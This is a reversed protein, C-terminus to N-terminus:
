TAPGNQGEYPQGSLRATMIVGGGDCIGTRGDHLRWYLQNKEENRSLLIVDHMDHESRFGYLTQSQTDESSSFYYYEDQEMALSIDTVSIFLIMM